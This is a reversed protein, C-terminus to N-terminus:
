AHKIHLAPSISKIDGDLNLCDIEKIEKKKIVSEKRNIHLTLNHLKCQVVTKALFLLAVFMELAHDHLAYHV